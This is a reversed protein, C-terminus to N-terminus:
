GCGGTRVASADEATVETKAAVEDRDDRFMSPHGDGKWGASLFRRHSGSTFKGAAKGRDQRRKSPLRSGSVAVACLLIGQTLSRLDNPDTRFILVSTQTRM